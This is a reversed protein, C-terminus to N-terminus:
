GTTESLARLLGEMMEANIKEIVREVRRVLAMADAGL